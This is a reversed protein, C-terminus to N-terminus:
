FEVESGSQPMHPWHPLHPRAQTGGLRGSPFTARSGLYVPTALGGAVAIYCRAGRGGALQECPLLTILSQNNLM